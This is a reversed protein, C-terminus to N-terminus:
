NSIVLIDGVKEVKVKKRVKVKEVILKEGRYLALVRKVYYITEKYPPVGGYKDVAGPGANYAALALDLKGNYKDLLRKFYLTGARINQRVNFPNRVGLSRATFPMLQMLGMAGKSSVARPNYGSEVQIISQILRPVLGRSLGYFDIFNLLSKDLPEQLKISVQMKRNSEPQNYILPVGKEDIKLSVKGEGKSGFCFFLILSSYLFFRFM